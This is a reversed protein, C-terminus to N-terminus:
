KRKQLCHHITSCFEGWPYSDTSIHVSRFHLHKGAALLLDRMHYDPINQYPRWGKKDYSLDTERTDWIVTRYSCVYYYARERERATPTRRSGPTIRVSRSGHMRETGAQSMRLSKKPM